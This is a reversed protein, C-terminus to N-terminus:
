SVNPSHLSRTLSGDCLGIRRRKSALYPTSSMSLYERQCPDKIYTDILLSYTESRINVMNQFDYFCRAETVQVKNSFQEVLNENVIGDSTALFALVHSIFHHENDNLRSMWDHLDKSLGM